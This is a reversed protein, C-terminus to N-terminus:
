RRDGPASEAPLAELQEVTRPWNAKLLRSLARDALMRGDTQCRPCYNAENGAYVIRQVATGCDPCPQRYRGHVAMGTRFATVKTPLGREPAAARLRELWEGLVAQCAAHLRACEEPTLARSQKFPSLRARHLIEDSYANGIGSLIRPDTLARKLTHNEARLAVDFADASVGLVELAARDFRALADEGCALHLAARRKAGAETLQLCGHEFGWEVLPGGRASPKRSPSKTSAEVWRLRGAIMLHVIAHYAGEFSVVIQKGLRSVGTVQRGAFAEACPTVTRLVFPHLLRLGSLARGAILPGLREVYVELDPLEPMGILICGPAESGIGRAM